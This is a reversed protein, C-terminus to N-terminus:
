GQHFGSLLKRRKKRSEYEKSICEFQNALVELEEDSLKEINIIQNNAPREPYSFGDPIHHDDDGHEGTIAM